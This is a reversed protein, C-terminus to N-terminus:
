SQAEKVALARLLVRGVQMVLLETSTKLARASIWASFGEFWEALDVESDVARKVVPLLATALDSVVACFEAVEQTAINVPATPEALVVDPKGTYQDGHTVWADSMGGDGYVATEANLMYVTVQEDEDIDLALGAALGILDFRGLVANRNLILALCDECLTWADRGHACDHEPPPYNPTSM